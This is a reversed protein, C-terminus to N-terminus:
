FFLEERQDVFLDKVFRLWKVSFLFIPLFDAAPNFLPWPLPLFFLKIFVVGGAVPMQDLLSSVLCSKIM